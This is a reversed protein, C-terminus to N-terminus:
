YDKKVPERYNFVATRVRRAVKYKKKRSTAKAKHRPIHKVPSHDRYDEM